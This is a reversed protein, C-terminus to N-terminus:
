RSAGVPHRALSARCTAIRRRDRWRRAMRSPRRDLLPWWRSVPGKGARGRPEGRGAHSRSDDVGMYLVGCRPLRALTRALGPAGWPGRWIDTRDTSKAWTMEGLYPGDIHEPEEPMWRGWLTRTRLQATVQDLDEPSVLWSWLLHWEQRYREREEHPASLSGYRSLAVWTTGDDDIPRVLADMSVVNDESAAWEEDSGGVLVPSRVQWWTEAEDSNGAEADIPGFTPDLDRGFYDAPMPSQGPEEPHFNDSLRAMLERLAIWQYKKGIREVRRHARGSDRSPINSDIEEFREPSWGLELVRRFVWRSALDSDYPDRRGTEPAAVTLPLTSFHRVRPELVYNGFDGMDFLSFYLSGYADETFSQNLEARSGPNGPPESNWAVTFREVDLAMGAPMETRLWELIGNIADRAADDVPAHSVSLSLVAEGVSHADVPSEGGGRLVAGHAATLLAAFVNPDDVAAFRELANPILTLRHAWLSALLRISLARLLGDPSATCWALATCIRDVSGDAVLPYDRVAARAAELLEGVGRTWGSEHGITYVSWTSDREPMPRALLYEHLWDANFPSESPALSLLLDFTYERSVVDDLAEQLLQRTTAGAVMPSLYRLSDLVGDTLVRRLTTDVEVLDAVQFNWREAAVTAIASILGPDADHIRAALSAPQIPGIPASARVIADAILYDSFRNYSFRVRDQRDAHGGDWVTAVEGVLLNEELLSAFLTSPWEQLHSAQEDALAKAESRLLWSRGLRAMESAVAQVAARVPHDSEDLRLRQTIVRERGELYREFVRSEYEGRSPPETIGADQLGVCYLKLFLPNAFARPPAYDPPFTIGHHAFYVRVAQRENLAFGEHRLLCWETRRTGGPDILEVYLDKVSVAIALAPYDEIARRLAPLETAWAGAEDTENLADIILLLRTGYALAAAEMAGLIEEMAMTPLGLQSEIGRWLEGGRFRIGLLVVVPIGAALGREAAVFLAHSKGAGGEGYLFLARKAAAEARQSRLLALAPEVVRRAQPMWAAQQWEAMALVGGVTQTLLAVLSTAVLMAATRDQPLSALAALADQLSVPIDAQDAILDRAGEALEALQAWDEDDWAAGTRLGELVGDVDVDVQVNPTYRSLSASLAMELRTQCWGLDLLQETWWFARVGRYRPETLRELLVGGTELVIEFDDPIPIDRRWRSVADM